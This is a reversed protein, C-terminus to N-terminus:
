RTETERVSTYTQQSIKDSTIVLETVSTSETHRRWRNAALHMRNEPQRNTRTWNTFMIDRVFEKHCNWWILLKPASPFLSKLQSCKFTLLDSTLTTYFSKLLTQLHHMSLPLPSGHGCTLQPPTSTERVHAKLGYTPSGRLRHCMALADGSRCDGEWDWLM